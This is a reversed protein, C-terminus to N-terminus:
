RDNRLYLLRSGLRAIVPDSARGSGDRTARAISRNTRRERALSVVVGDNGDAGARLFDDFELHRSASAAGPFMKRTGDAARRAEPYDSLFIRLVILLDAARSSVGLDLFGRMDSVIMDAVARPGRGINLLYSSLLYHHRTSPVAGLVLENSALGAFAACESVTIM